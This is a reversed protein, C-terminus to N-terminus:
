KKYAYNLRWWEAGGRFVSSPAGFLSAVTGSAAQESKPDPLNLFQAVSNSSLEAVGGTVLVRGILEDSMLRPRWSWRPYREIEEPASVGLREIAEHM